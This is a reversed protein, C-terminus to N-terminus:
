RTLRALSHSPLLIITHHPSDRCVFRLLELLGLAVAVAVDVSV